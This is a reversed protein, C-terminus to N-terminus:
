IQGKIDVKRFASLKLQEMTPYAEKTKLYYQTKVEKDGNSVEEPEIDGEQLSAVKQEKEFIFQDIGCEKAFELFEEYSEFALEQVIYAIDVDNRFAKCIAAMAALRERHIFMDMIYPGMNPASDYLQFLKHYNHCTLATNVQLAHEVAKDTAIRYGKKCLSIENKDTLKDINNIGDKMKQIQFYIDNMDERNRTHLIYLIRYALFESENGPIGREYLTKLRSQCQNYEGLDGKELAIRAHIEYVTVTFENQIHQVTLDQRMSKFQDCIYSYNQEEKWKTKLLELTQKLIHLPRVMNPDPASTLRLYRKELVTSRGVIAQNPDDVNEVNNFNSYSSQTNNYANSHIRDNEFRKLRKERMSQDEKIEFTNSPRRYFM